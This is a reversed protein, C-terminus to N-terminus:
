SARLEALTESIREFLFKNDLDTLAEELAPIAVRAPAGIDCLASFVADRVTGENDTTDGVARTLAELIRPDTLRADGHKSAAMAGLAAAAGCRVGDADGWQALLVVLVPVAEAALPGLASLGALAQSRPDFLYTAEDYLPCAECLAELADDYDHYDPGGRVIEVLSAIACRLTEADGQPLHGHDALAGWAIAAWAQMPKDASQLLASVKVKVDPTIEGSVIAKSLTAQEDPTM